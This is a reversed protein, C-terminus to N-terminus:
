RPSSRRLAEEPLARTRVDSLTRRTPAAPAAAAEPDHERRVAAQRHAPLLVDGGPQLHRGPHRREPQELAQEPAIYDATGLVAGDDLRETLKDSRRQGVPGPGHRPDEGDRDHRAILNGPKIDRHVFGKEHAHQLGPPPRRSTTPPAHRLPLPGDRDLSRSSTEGEVYEMVLYPVDDHRAVDFVRVINPHDLAAAARAERLFRELALNQDTTRARCSCRSRRGQPAARPARGLYVAGMGGRGLMTRSSTPGIRFGSHRGPLFQEAQFRTLAAGESVLM